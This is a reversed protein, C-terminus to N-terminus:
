GLALDLALYAWLGVTLLLSAIFARRRWMVRNSTLHITAHAIRSAVFLWALVVPVITVADFLQLQICAIHFLVPVEFQNAINNKAALSDAPEALNDKFQSVSAKGARVAAVRWKSLLMYVALVLLVHAFMPWFLYASSLVIM